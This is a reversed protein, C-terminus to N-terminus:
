IIQRMIKVTCTGQFWQSFNQIRVASKKVLLTGGFYIFVKVTILFARSFSFVFLYLSMQHSSFTCLICLCLGAAQMICVYDLLRCLVFLNVKFSFVSGASALRRM